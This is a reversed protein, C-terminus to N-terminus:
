KKLFSRIFEMSKERDKELMKRVPAYNIASEDRHKLERGTVGYTQAMDLLRSGVGSSHPPLEYYFQKEFNVSFAFGHFSNTVVYDANLMHSLWQAPGADFTYEAKKRHLKSYSITRIPLGTKRSLDYAYEWLSDSNFVTYVFIYGKHSFAPDAMESWQQRDLLLTPDLVVPVKRGCIEEVLGAATQERVSIYDFNELLPRITPQLAPDIQALGFSGAYSVKQTEGKPYDLYYFWDKATLNYNWVQDSGAVVVDYDAPEESGFVYYKEWFDRFASQRKLAVDLNYLHALAYVPSRAQKWDFVRSTKDIEECRHSIFSADAGQARLVKLLAVAQLSTGYNIAKEFTVIGAKM